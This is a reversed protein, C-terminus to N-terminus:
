LEIDRGFDCPRSLDVGELPASALLAKLGSAKGTGFRERLLARTESERNPDALARVIGRVLPADDKRVHVELRIVGRQTLRRRYQSLAKKRQGIPMISPVENKSGSIYGSVM